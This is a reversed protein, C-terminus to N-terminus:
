KIDNYNVEDDDGCCPKDGARKAGASDKIDDSNVRNIVAPTQPQKTAELIKAIGALDVAPTPNPLVEKQKPQSSLVVLMSIVAVIGTIIIALNEKTM